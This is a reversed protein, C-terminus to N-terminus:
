KEELLFVRGEPPLEAYGVAMPPLVSGFEDRAGAPITTVGLRGLTKTEVEATADDVGARGRLVADTVAQSGERNVWIVRWKPTTTMFMVTRPKLGTTSRMYSRNSM